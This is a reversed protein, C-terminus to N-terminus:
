PTSGAAPTDATGRKAMGKAKGRRGDDFTTQRRIATWAKSTQRRIATWAHSVKKHRRIATWADSLPGRRGSAALGAVLLAVAVGIAIRRWARGNVFSARLGSAGGPRKFNAGAPQASPLVSRCTSCVGRDAPGPTNLAGCKSCAVVSAPTNM